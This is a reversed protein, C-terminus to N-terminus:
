ERFLVYVKQTRSRAHNPVVVRFKYPRNQDVHRRKTQWVYRYRGDTLPVRAVTRWERLGQRRRVRVTGEHKPAIRGRVVVRQGYRYAPSPGNASACEGGRYFPICITLSDAEHASVRATAVTGSLLGVLALSVGVQKINFGGLERSTKISGM